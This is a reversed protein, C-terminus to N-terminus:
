GTVLVIESYCIVKNRFQSRWDKEKLLKSFDSVLDTGKFRVKLDNVIELEKLDYLYLLILLMGQYPVSQKDKIIKEAFITTLTNIVQYLLQMAKEKSQSQLLLMSALNLQARWLYLESKSLELLYISEQFKEISAEYDRQAALCCGYINEARGKQSYMNIACAEESSEQAWLKSQDFKGSLFFSMAIDTKTHVVEQYPYQKNKVIEILKQYKEAAKDPSHKLLQNGEQSLLAAQAYYSCPYLQFGERFILYAQDGSNCMKVSLGYANYVQGPYDEEEEFYIASNKLSDYLQKSIELAKKLNGVVFNKHWLMLQYKYWFKNKEYNVYNLLINKKVLDYIFEYDSNNEEHLERICDLASFLLDLPLENTNEIAKIYRLLEALADQYQHMEILNRSINSMRSTINELDGIIYRIELEILLYNEDAGGCKLVYPLLKRATRHRLYEDSLERMADLYRLHRCILKGNKIDFITSDVCARQVNDSNERFFLELIEISITGKLIIALEFIQPFFSINKLDSLLAMATSSFKIGLKEFYIRQEKDSLTNVYKEFGCPQNELLKIANHIELPNDCLIEALNSSAQDTLKFHKKIIEISNERQFQAIKFALDALKKIHNFYRESKKIQNIKPMFFPARAELVVRINNKKLTQIIDTFFIFTEESVTHLNEFFIAIKLVKRKPNLILDLYKLLLHLYIDKHKQYKSYASLLVYKVANIIESNTNFDGVSLLTDIYKELDSDELVTELKVGWISELVSLYLIRSSTCLSLDITCSGFNSDNLKSKVKDCLVSKGTGAIGSILYIGSQFIIRAAIEEIQKTRKPVEVYDVTSNDLEVLDEQSIDSVISNEIKAIFQKSIGCKNILHTKKEQIFRKLDNGNVCKIEINTRKQFKAANEKTQPAFPINTVIYLQSASLNFAIIIAKACDNLPLSSQSKRYKAEMLVLKMIERDNSRLLWIGDFGSDHSADTHKEEFIDADKYLTRVYEYALTEWEKWNNNKKESM